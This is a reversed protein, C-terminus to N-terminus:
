FYNIYRQHLVLLRRLVNIVNLKNHDVNIFVVAFIVFDVVGVVEEDFKDHM